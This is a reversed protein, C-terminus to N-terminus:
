DLPLFRDREEPSPPRCSSLRGFLAYRNRAVRDYAWDRLGRPLVRLGRLWSWPRRLGAAIRLAAESRDFVHGDAVLLMTECADPAHGLERLMERGARSQMAAFVFRRDRDNSLVFRVLANCLICLGDFLILAQGPTEPSRGPRDNRVSRRSM